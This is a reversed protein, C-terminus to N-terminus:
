VFTLAWCTTLHRISICSNLKYPFGIRSIIIPQRWENNHLATLQALYSVFMNSEVIMKYYDQLWTGDDNQLSSPETESRTLNPITIM